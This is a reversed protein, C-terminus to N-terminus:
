CITQGYLSTRGLFLSYSAHERVSLMFYVVNNIVFVLTSDFVAHVMMVTHHYQFIYITNQTTRKLIDVCCTSRHCIIFLDIYICAIELLYVFLTNDFHRKIAVAYM